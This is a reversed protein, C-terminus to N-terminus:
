SKMIQVCLQCVALMHTDMCQIIRHASNGTSRYLSPPAKATRPGQKQKESKVRNAKDTKDSNHSSVSETSSLRDEKSAATAVKNDENSKKSSDRSNSHRYHRKDHNQHKSKKRDSFLCHCITKEYLLTNHIHYM